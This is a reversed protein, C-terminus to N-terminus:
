GTQQSAHTRDQCINNFFDKEASSRFKEAESTRGMRPSMLSWVLKWLACDCVKTATRRLSAAASLVLFRDERSKRLREVKSKKLAIPVFRVHSSRCVIDAISRM